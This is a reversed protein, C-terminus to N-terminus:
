KALEIELGVTDGDRITIGAGQCEVFGIARSRVSDLDAEIRQMADRSVDRSSRKQKGEGQHESVTAEESSRGTGEPIIYAAVLTAETWGGPENTVLLPLSGRGGLLESGQLGSFVFCRDAKEGADGAPALGGIRVRKGSLDVTWLECESGRRNSDFDYGVVWLSFRSPPPAPPGGTEGAHASIWAARQRTKAREGFGLDPTDWQRVVNAPDLFRKIYGSEGGGLARVKRGRRLLDKVRGLYPAGASRAEQASSGTFWLRTNGARVRELARVYDACAKAYELSARVLAIRAKVKGDRALTEAKSVSYDLKALLQPTFLRVVEEYPNQRALHFGCSVAAAELTEYYDKMVGAAECYFKTYFDELLADVDQGPDWLLRAAVYYVLGNSGLNEAYQTALGFLGLKHFYPIDQKLTHVIPWPLELWSVKYYYEYLAVKGAIQRWGKLYENYARNYPCNPDSLAHNHCMFRCLQIVSSHNAKLLPDLPPAVYCHYAISKLLLDPYANRVIESVTNYFLLMRRSLSNHAGSGLEDEARCNPCECFALGDMPDLSVIKLDPEAERLKIINAAVEAVVEPNSTCLQVQGKRGRGGGRKGGVLAYYEPHRSFYKEPPLLRDFTHVFWKTKFEGQCDVAVNMGNRRAWEGKGVWRWRFGPEGVADIEGIKVTSASPVVEGLEGPMFWRVGLQKELFREVAYYMALETKGALLVAGSGSKILYGEQSLGKWDSERVELGVRKAEEVADNGGVLVQCAMRRGEGRSPLPDPHPTISRVAVKAGSIKGLYQALEEAPGRALEGVAVVECKVAGSDM